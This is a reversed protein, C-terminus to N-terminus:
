ALALLAIAAGATGLGVLQSRNPRERLVTIALVVPIVPYLAALVTAVALLQQRTAGLYLVIAVSGLAGVLLAPAVLRTPLRLTARAARALPVITATALVRAALIPWLGAAPDVRSIALFQLAFGIGAILGDVTGTASGTAGVADRRSVLWLAPLALVIGIWALISPRDGLLAVGALVPLAVAAVDSLPVVTSMRGRALGRYLYAVGVGTGVGSLAGWGLAALEVHPAPILPAAALVLVTGGLQGATAIGYSDAHRAMLGSLFHVVGFVLASTLALLEAM